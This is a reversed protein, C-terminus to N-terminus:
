THRRRRAVIAALALALGLAGTPAPAQTGVGATCACGGEDRSEADGGDRDGGGGGSAADPGDGHGGGSEADPGDGDGGGGSAAGARSSTGGEGGTGGGECVDGVGNGDSDTQTDNSVNPCNDCLDGLGDSDDDAQDPNALGVCNDIDDDIGDDDADVGDDVFPSQLELASYAFVVCDNFYDQSWRAKDVNENLFATVDFSIDDWYTGASGPYFGPGPLPVPQTAFSLQGDAHESQGDGVGFHLTASDLDPPIVLDEFTSNGSNLPDITVAGDRLIVTGFFDSDPDSYFVVLSAGQTDETLTASPFDTLTYTGNKDVRGTIDARYVRNKHTSPYRGWCTHNSTGALTGVVNTGELTVNADGADSYVVWPSQRRRIPFILIVPSRRPVAATQHSTHWDPM